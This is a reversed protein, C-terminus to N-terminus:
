KKIIRNLEFIYSFTRKILNWKGILNGGGKAEGHLRKNYYVPYELIKLYNIKAQYLLYLDLSFDDPANPMKELFSRHFLKPQANIDSLKIGMMLSSIWSMGVTFFADFLNRGIRKGKLIYKEYDKTQIYVSYAEIVDNPNTQLDAHTWAIVDGSCQNVGSMIGHGYGINKKLLIHKILSDSNELGLKIMDSTGDTSGNDVLIIEVDKTNISELKELLISINDV